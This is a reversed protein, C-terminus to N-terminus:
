NVYKSSILQLEKSLLKQSLSICEATKNRLISKDEECKINDFLGDLEDIKLEFEHHEKKNNNLLLKIKCYNQFALDTSICYNEYFEYYKKSIEDNNTDNKKIFKMNLYNVAAADINTLYLSLIDRFSEIWKIKAATLNNLKVQYLAILGAFLGLLIPIIYGIWIPEEEPKERKQLISIVGSVKSTDSSNEILLKDFSINLTDTTSSNAVLFSSNFLLISLYIIIKTKM